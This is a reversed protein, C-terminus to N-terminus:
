YEFQSGGLFERLVSNSPVQKEEIPVFLELFKLLQYAECYFRDSRPVELLFRWALNRIAATEYVLSSNFLADAEGQFPFIFKEEGERVKPWMSLTLAAPSSRFRRDRVIRRLLRVKSTAFRNHEDIVLQTLANVFVLYRSSRPLAPYLRPNLGHLGELILVQGPRLRRKRWTDRPTPSGRRFDYTPIAVEQGRCLAELHSSLLKLDLAEVAEFDKEGDLDLPQEARPRYYNDLGLFTPELGNVLLHVRLRRVFTTKGASSPGAVCVIKIEDRRECIADSIQGIKKEHFAEAVRIVESVRGNLVAENLDGVTGVSLKRNWDRTEAYSELLMSSRREDSVGPRWQLVLGGSRANVKIPDLYGTSPVYPGHQMASFGRLRIFPVTANFWTRLLRKRYGFPDPIDHEVGEVPLQENRFPIDEQILSQCRETLKEAVLDLQDAQWVRHFLGTPLSQGVEVKLDPYLEFLATYFVLVASRLLLSVAHPSERELPLVTVPYHVETHLGVLRNNLLAAVVSRDSGFLESLSSGVPVSRVTDGQTVQIYSM